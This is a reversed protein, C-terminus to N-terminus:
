DKEWLVHLTNYWSGINFFLNKCCFKLFSKFNGGNWLFLTIKRGELTSLYQVSFTIHTYKM